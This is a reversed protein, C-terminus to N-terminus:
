RDVFEQEFFDNLYMIIILVFFDFTSKAENKM